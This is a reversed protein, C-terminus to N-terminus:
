NQRGEIAAILVCTALILRRDITCAAPIHVDLKYVFPNFRQKIQVADPGSGLTFNQPVINALFRRLLAMGMSDEELRAIPEDFEDLLEWTDRLMSSMGKRRAAGVKLGEREDLVDYCAAFDIMQRARIRLLPDTQGEDSFVSIDEKLKFAKQASYGVINEASDFVYFGAGFLKLVKRRVTYHNLDLLADIM